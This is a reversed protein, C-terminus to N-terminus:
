PIPPSLFMFIPIKPYPLRPRPTSHAILCFGSISSAATNVLRAGSVTDMKVSPAATQETSSTSCHFSLISTIIRQPPLAVSKGSCVGFYAFINLTTSLKSVCALIGSCKSFTSLDAFSLPCTPIIETPQSGPINEKFRIYAFAM